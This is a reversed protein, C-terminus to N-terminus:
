AGQPYSACVRLGVKAPRLNPDVTGRNVASATNRDFLYGGGRAILIGSGDQNTVWEFVNGSMDHLGFPSDSAPFSGVVTPGLLVGSINAGFNAEGVSLTDGHPFRRDDAGRAAREWERESCIRAGALKGSRALWTLYAEADGWTLGAVPLQRWDVSSQDVLRVKAGLPATQTEEGLKLEYQWTGDPLQALGLGSDWAALEPGLRALRDAPPLAALFAIYDANTVEHRAILFSGTEVERAPEATFFSRVPEPDVSGYLSRGQPIYVFGPPLTDERPLVVAVELAENRKARVTYYVTEYGPLQFIMRYSGPAVEMAATETTDVKRLVTPIQHGTADAEYRELTVVAGPPESTVHLVAPANWRTRLTGSVDYLELRAQMEALRGPEHLGEVVLMRQYLVEALRARLDDRSADLVLAAELAQAAASFTTDIRAVEGQYQLWLSNGAQGKADDFLGLAQERLVEAETQLQEGRAVQQGAIEVHADIKRRLDVQGKLWLGGYTALAITPLLVLAARRLRRGRAMATRSADLFDRERPRLTEPELLTTEKLQVTTWLGDRSRGLREWDAVALELRHRVARSEREEDLWGRLTAWGALLAEHAIEFVVRDGVERVVVLRANVLASLAAKAPAEGAVLEEESLSARTDELTVLRMLVRRGARRQAPLLQALAGDGHRALAGTVGGIKTLDAATIVASAKDRIEWLEALAFQLLPLSGRSGAKVLEDVLAETEFSVAKTQAPGVIAERAGEPSLPRLLYIARGIEDGLAPIQAVRTLFDGRVTTIIRLGPIGSALRALLQGVVAVELADGLTVLEELQDVFILRGRVDGLQKRLARILADPLGAILASVTEETMDFLGALTATLTQLPYRGPTMVASAWSRGPELGGEEVVPLVGARCLSSKGTGSDGAVVVIADGRLREVVARIEASRGFFLARHQAEFAQLGRYPNGEPIALERGMPTLQELASRLDDASAFRSFPDRRLCRDIISALRPDVRPARELLPRPEQEQVRTALEVPSTAETPPRGSCLIYLLVGLAYVDSRRSAAEARWLEPAMYHPTGLLTGVQTLSASRRTWTNSAEAEVEAGGGGVAGGAAAAEIVAQMKVTEAMRDVRPRVEAAHREVAALAARTTTGIDHEDGSASPEPAGEDLLKALSFDLLKIEGDDTLVANALKIDRHLVGMRHATALGRALGIGMELVKRWPLPVTLESLSKGRIYETILFPHGELEGVRYIVMVNPHQIRAVARAEVLFRERDEADPAVNGIFKVAVPRDLVDDHALYVSGMSGRGLLRILRYEDFRQPPM